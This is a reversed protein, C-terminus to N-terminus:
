EGKVSQVIEVFQRTKDALGHLNEETAEFKAPVLSSGLGIGVAGNNLFSEVNELNIGGTPMIPIQPLPGRMDKIFSPGVSSAPFLKVIDAGNEYATLFETPTYAAPISIAGYRKTLKITELNLTPSIIFQAGAQIAAKASEPDLVTGAGVAMEDGFQRTIQEIVSFAGPSNLTVEINKIGGDKLAQTIALTKEAKVGRLIAVLKHTFISQLANM